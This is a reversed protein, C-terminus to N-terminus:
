GVRYQAYQSGAGYQAHRSSALVSNQEVAPCCVASCPLMGSGLWSASMGVNVGLQRAGEPRSTRAAAATAPGVCSVGVM